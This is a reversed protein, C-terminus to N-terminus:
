RGIPVIWRLLQMKIARKQVRVLASQPQFAPQSPDHLSKTYLCGTRSLMRTSFPTIPTCLSPNCTGYPFSTVGFTKQELPEARERERETRELALAAKLEKARSCRQARNPRGKNGWDGGPLGLRLYLAFQAFGETAKHRRRHHLDPSGRWRHQPTVVKIQLHM